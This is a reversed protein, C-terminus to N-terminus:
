RWEEKPFPIDMRTSPDPLAAVKLLGYLFSTGIMLLHLNERHRDSFAKNGREQNIWESLEHAEKAMLEFQQKTFM